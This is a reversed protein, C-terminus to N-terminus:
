RGSAFANREADEILARALAANHIFAATDELVLRAAYMARTQRPTKCAVPTTSAHAPESVACSGALAQAVARARQELERAGAALAGTGAAHCSTCTAPDVRFSHDIRGSASAGHCGVCGGPVHAHAPAARVVDWASGDVDSAPLRVQGQSLAGGAPVHCAECLAGRPDSPATGSEFASAPMTRVLRAGRHDSHPAHCAACAIGMPPSDAQHLQPDRGAVRELFGHTTHCGICRGERTAATADSRAMKSARWQEVHVYRPPADHCTACVDSRLSLERGEPEPLVGPGHCATCRVGGLRRLPQPLDDWRTTSTWSFGLQAAVAMFGGDHAGREGLVHCDLMCGVAAPEAAELHRQLAASMPSTRTTEAISAHCEPRGCDYPTKDHWLAQLVLTEGAGSALTWRGPADPTFLALEGSAHVQAHGRQPAKHVRWDSGSLMLQQSVAVSSLGTARSTAHLAITRRIPPSGPGHWVAELVVRGQTRPSFPVIGAPPPDPHVVEFRPTRARLTFGDREISLESVAAGELQRWEIRGRGREACGHRVDITFPTDFGIPARDRGLDIVPRAHIPARQPGAAVLIPCTEPLHVTVPVARDRREILLEGQAGLRHASVNTAPQVQVADLTFPREASTEVRVVLTDSVREATCAVLLVVFLVTLRSFAHV